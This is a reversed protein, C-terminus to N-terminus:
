KGRDVGPYDVVQPPGHIGLGTVTYRPGTTVDFVFTIKETEPKTDIADLATAEEVPQNAVTATVRADYFGRSRLATVIRTRRAQAGQLLSLGDGELPQAKDMDETLEKLEKAMDEDGVVKLSIDATRAMAAGPMLFVATVAVLLFGLWSTGTRRQMVSRTLDASM